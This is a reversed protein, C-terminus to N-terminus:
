CGIQDVSPFASALVRYRADLKSVQGGLHAPDGDNVVVDDAIALRARRGTQAAIMLSALESDIGDRQMLRAHQVEPIVDVVLIRQLWPYGIRGGAEALLPIVVLVYPGTAAVAAQRLRARVVPHVISELASREAADAFVRQRLCRRDLRGDVQLIQSGFRAVICDLLPGPEVVQRAITDADVVTTSLAEFMQALTSKGCAIGGTLGVAYASM